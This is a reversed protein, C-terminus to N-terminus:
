TINNISVFNKHFQSQEHCSKCEKRFIRGCMCTMKEKRKELQEKYKEPDDIRKQKAKKNIEVKNLQYKDAREVKNIEYYEAKYEVNYEESNFARYTNLTPNLLDMTRQEEQRLETDTECIFEHHVEMVFKNNERIAKYLKLKSTKSNYKHKRERDDMDWTSGIYFELGVWIIYIFGLM